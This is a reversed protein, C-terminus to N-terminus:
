VADLKPRAFERLMGAVHAPSYDSTLRDRAARGLAERRVPDTVLLLLAQRLAGRQRRPVVIGADGVVTGNGGVDTVVCPLSCSMAEVVALSTGEGFASGLVFVDAGSFIRPVDARWGLRVLREQPPLHETGKGLAITVAGPIDRVAALMGPWDKMPDLRAAIAVVVEDDHVGLEDRFSKRLALDRRFARTDICNPIVLSRPPRFGIDYHYDHGQQANYIIGDVYPSLLRGIGRYYRLPWAYERTDLDSVLISWILQTHRRGAATLSLFALMNSIYDWGHIV